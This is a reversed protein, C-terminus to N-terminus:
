NRLWSGDISIWQDMLLESFWQNVNIPIFIIIKLISLHILISGGMCSVWLVEYRFWSSNIGHWLNVILQSLWENWFVPLLGIVEHVSLHSAHSWWGSIKNLKVGFAEFVTTLVWRWVDSTWHRSVSMWVRGKTGTGMIIPCVNLESNLIIGSRFLSTFNHGLLSRIPSLWNIEVLSEEIKFLLTVVNLEAVVWSGLLPSLNEGLRVTTLPSDCDLIM